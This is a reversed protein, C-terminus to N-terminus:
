DTASECIEETNGEVSKCGDIFGEYYPNKGNNDDRFRECSDYNGGDFPDDQGQRYGNNYCAEITSPGGGFAYQHMLSIMTVSIMLLFITRRLTIM